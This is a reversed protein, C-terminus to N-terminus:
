DAIVPVGDVVETPGVHAYMLGKSRLQRPMDPDTSRDGALGDGAVDHAVHAKGNANGGDVAMATCDFMFTCMRTLGHRRWVFGGPKAGAGDVRTSRTALRVARVAPGQRECRVAFQRRRRGNDGAGSYSCNAGGASTARTALRVARAAPGLRGHRLVFQGRRRGLGGKGMGGANGGTDGAQGGTGEAKGSRGTAMGGTGCGKSDKGGV